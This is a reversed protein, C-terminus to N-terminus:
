ILIDWDTAEIINKRVRERLWVDYFDIPNYDDSLIIASTGQPFRFKMKLTERIVKIALPHVPFSNVIEPDLSIPSQNYAIVAMNGYGDGKDISFLPYIEVTGFIQELTKIISATMFSGKKISGILNVALIGSKTLRSKVSRLTEISLIHWPTTDGNFVDLIVYDYKKGPKNLYYRADDIIVEGSISFGFYKKAIDEIDPNIDVVDTKIGMKEYWMPILGPGLGVVLCTKGSPNLSYPLIQMLYPYEYISMKNYMDIGSQPSGDIILDRTRMVGYSYEVVKLKGYFSDRSFIDTVTTGNPMVKSVNREEGSFFLPIIILVLLYWKKKFFVFYVASLCILVFGAVEFIRSVGFYAILVFGTLVTGAFSGITSVAYFVGVTRGINRLEQAAIKIIYPSVCGLLFLSPGFLIMSSMLAGQRLGMPMCAKLTVGKLHPIFLVLIGAILIIAYLYDPSRKKDSVVGGAAYGAALAILTVTILSTWVFLSVGFFPGIVRSGLVEIVMVLAGCIMATLILYYFFSRSNLNKEELVPGM